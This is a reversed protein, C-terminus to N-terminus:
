NGAAADNAMDALAALEDALNVTRLIAGTGDVFPAAADTDDYIAMNDAMHQIEAPQQPVGTKGAAFAKALLVKAPVAKAGWPLGHNKACTKGYGVSLSEATDLQLGCFGCESGIMAYALIYVLDDDANVLTTLATTVRETLSQGAKKWIHVTGDPDVKGIAEWKGSVMASLKRTGKPADTWMTPISLRISISSDDPQVVRYRVTKLKSLNLAPAAPEGGVPANVQVKLSELAKMQEARIV